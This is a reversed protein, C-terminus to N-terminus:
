QEYYPDDELKSLRAELRDLHKQLTKIRQHQTLYGVIGSMLIFGAAYLHGDPWWKQGFYGLALAGVAFMLWFQGKQIEILNILLTLHNIDNEIKVPHM